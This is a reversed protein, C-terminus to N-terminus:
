SSPQMWQIMQSAMSSEYIQQNLLSYRTWLNWIRQWQDNAASIEQVPLGTELAVKAGVIAAHSNPQDLLKSHIERALKEIDKASRDPNSGLAEKVLDKTREVASRAQQLTVATVDSLLASYLAYTGSQAPAAQVRAAAEEVAAIVDKAAVFPASPRLQIQPDVPGLDSTPGMIIRHAGLALLTGASKASDPVVVVFEKCRSQIARALRVAVEGDGGPSALLLHLDEDSNAGFLLEEFYTPSWPAILGLFVVLRCSYKQQYEQILQQRQYRQENQSHYLPTHESM